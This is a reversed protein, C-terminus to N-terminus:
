AGKAKVLDYKATVNGGGAGDPRKQQTYVWEIKGYNLGVTEAPLDATGKSNGDAAVSSIVLEELNITLYKVKSGGSQRCFDIAAKKFHKGTSVADYLKPSAMDVYKTILIDGHESSGTTGGGSSSRTSSTPQTVKHSYSLVEIWDKHQDEQSEGKIGDISLYADFM